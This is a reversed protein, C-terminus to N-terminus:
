SGNGVSRPSWAFVGETSPDVTVRLWNTATDGFTELRTLNSAGAHQREVEFV